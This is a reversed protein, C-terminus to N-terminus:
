FISAVPENSWEHSAAFLDPQRTAKDLPAVTCAFRSASSGDYSDAGAAACIAIRRASNVRGVHLYCNRKRAVRGWEVATAEKWATDGGIFIGVNPSLLSRVDDPHMENQVAILVPTPLGRLRELWALSLDLSRMGGLVIDPLVIWDAAEGVKEVARMFARDDFPKNQQFCSWAGNDLSYGFGETRLVGAPSLILRWGANSMAELNRRTGTRSAYARMAPRQMTMREISEDGLDDAIGNTCYYAAYAEMAQARGLKTGDQYPQAWSPLPLKSSKRM